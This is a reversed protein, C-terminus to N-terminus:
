GQDIISSDSGPCNHQWSSKKKQEFTFSTVPAQGTLITPPKNVGGVGAKPHSQSQGIDNKNSPPYSNSSMFMVPMVLMDECTATHLMFPPDCSYLIVTLTSTGVLNGIVIDTIQFNSYSAIQSSARANYEDCLLM